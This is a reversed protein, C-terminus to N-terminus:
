NNKQKLKDIQAAFYTNKEPYILILKSYIEIAKSYFGQSAYITALTETCVLDDFKTQKVIKEQPVYNFDVKNLASSFPSFEVKGFGQESAAMADVDERSFYDGGAYIIKIKEKPKKEEEKVPETKQRAIAPRDLILVSRDILYLAVKKAAAKKEVGGDAILREFYEKRALSFWPYVEIMQELESFSLEKINRYNAM